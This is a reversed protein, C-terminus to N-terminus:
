TEGGSDKICKNEGGCTGCAGDMENEKAQIINPSYYLEHLEEKHIKKL